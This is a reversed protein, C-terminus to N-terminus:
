GELPDNPDALREVLRDFGGRPVEAALLNAPFEGAEGRANEVIMPEGPTVVKWVQGPTMVTRAGTLASANEDWAPGDPDYAFCRGVTLDGIYKKRSM